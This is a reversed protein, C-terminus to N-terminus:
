FRSIFVFLFTFHKYSFSLFLNSLFLFKSLLLFFINIIMRIIFSLYTFFYVNFCDSTNIDNFLILDDACDKSYEVLLEFICYRRVQATLCFVCFERYMTLLGHLGVIIAQRFPNSGSNGLM